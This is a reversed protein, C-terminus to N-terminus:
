EEGEFGLLQEVPTGTRFEEAEEQLKKIREKIQPETLDPDESLWYDRKTALKWKFEFEWCGIIANQRWNGNLSL